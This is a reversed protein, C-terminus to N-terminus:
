ELLISGMNSRGGRIRHWEKVPIEIHNEDDFWFRATSGTERIRPVLALNILGESTEVFVPKEM